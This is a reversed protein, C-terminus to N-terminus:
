LAQFFNLLNTSSKREGWRPDAANYIPDGVGLFWGTGADPHKSLLLAGPITQVSHKSVLYNVKGDKRETVLAAFPAEFLAGELSLMWSRKAAAERGLQGFLEKYLAEGLEVAEPRGARVADSLASVRSRIVGTAAIKRLEFSNRTVAWLYSEKNGLYFSLLVESSGLGHQFHILSSQGRFIEPNKASIGLGAKAEM